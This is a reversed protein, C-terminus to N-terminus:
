VEHNEELRCSGNDETRGCSRLEFGWLFGQLDNGAKEKGSLFLSLCLSKWLPISFLSLGELCLPRGRERERRPPLCNTRQTTAEVCAPSSFYPVDALGRFIRSLPSTSRALLPDPPQPVDRAWVNSSNTSQLSPTGQEVFSKRGTTPFILLKGDETRSEERPVITNVSLNTWPSIPPETCPEFWFQARM